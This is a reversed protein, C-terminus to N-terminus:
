STSIMVVSRLLLMTSTPLIVRWDPYPREIGTDYIVRSSGDHYTMTIPEATTDPKNADPLSAGM